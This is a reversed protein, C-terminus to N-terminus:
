PDFITKEKGFRVKVQNERIAVTQQVQTEGEGILSGEMRIGIETEFRRESIELTALNNNFTFDQNIFAEFANDAEALAFSHINGYRNMFPTLLTNMQQQYESRLMIKYNVKVWTPTPISVFEYVIEKNKFRNTNKTGQSRKAGANAFNRTKLPQIQRAVTFVNKRRDKSYYLSSGFPGQGAEKIVTVRELTIVPLIMTEGSDRATASHKLQYARETGAWIIPVKKFGENTTVFLDLEQDLWNFIATDFTELTCPQVHKEVPM